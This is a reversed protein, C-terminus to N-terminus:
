CFSIAARHQISLRAAEFLSLWVAQEKWLGRENELASHIRAIEDDHLTDRDLHVGIAPTAQKLEKILTQSSGLMGGPLREVTDFIVRGFPVPVYFGEADSHCILHSTGSLLEGVLVSDLAPDEQAALPRALWAPDHIRYAHARRLYHLFSYPFSNLSCRNQLPPLSEPEHHMPLHNEELILNVNRFLGRM